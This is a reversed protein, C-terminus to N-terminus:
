DMELFIRTRYNNGYDLKSTKKGSNWQHMIMCERIKGEGDEDFDLDM